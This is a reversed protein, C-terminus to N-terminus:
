TCDSCCSCSVDRCDTFLYKLTGSDVNNCVETPMSGSLENDITVFFDLHKLTGLESPITGTFKNKEMILRKLNPCKSLDTPIEGSLQDIIM